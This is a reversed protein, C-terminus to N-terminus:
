KKHCYFECENFQSQGLLVSLNPDADYGYDIDISIWQEDEYAIIGIIKGGREATIKSNKTVNSVHIENVEDTLRIKTRLM